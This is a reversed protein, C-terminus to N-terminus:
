KPAQGLPQGPVALPRGTQGFQRLVRQAKANKRIASLSTAEFEQRTEPAMLAAWENPANKSFGRGGPLWLLPDYGYEEPNTAVDTYETELARASYLDRVDQPLYQARQDLSEALGPGNDLAYKGGRQYADRNPDIPSKTLGCSWTTPGRVTGEMGAATSRRRRGKKVTRIGWADDVAQTIGPGSFSAVCKGAERNTPDRVPEGTAGDVMPFATLGARSTNAAYPSTYHFGGVSGSRLGQVAANVVADPDAVDTNNADTTLIDAHRAMFSAMGYTGRQRSAPDVGWDSYWNKVDNLFNGNTALDQLTAGRLVYRVNGTAEDLIPQVAYGHEYFVRGLGYVAAQAVMHMVNDANAVIGGSPSVFGRLIRIWQPSGVGVYGNRNQPSKVRVQGAGSRLQDLVSAQRFSGPLIMGYQQIAEPINFVKIEALADPYYQTVDPSYADVFQGREIGGLGYSMDIIAPNAANAEQVAPRDVNAMQQNMLAVMQDNLVVPTTTTFMNRGANSLTGWGLLKNALYAPAINPDARTGLTAGSVDELLPQADVPIGGFQQALQAQAPLV